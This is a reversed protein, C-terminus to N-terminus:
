ERSRRGLLPDRPAAAKRGTVTALEAEAEWATPGLPMRAGADRARTAPPSRTHPGRPPCTTVERPLGAEVPAQLLGAVLKNSYLQTMFYKFSQLM